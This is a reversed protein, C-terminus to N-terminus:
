ASEKYQTDRRVIEEIVHKLDMGLVIAVDEIQNLGIYKGSIFDYM